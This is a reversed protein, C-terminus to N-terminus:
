QKLALSVFVLAIALGNLLIPKAAHGSKWTRPSGAKAFIVLAAAMFVYRIVTIM